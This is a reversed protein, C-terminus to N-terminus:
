VLQQAKRAALVDAVTLFSGFVVIRDGEAARERTRGYAERPSACEHIDGGAGCERLIAALADAGLGRPGPLSAVMWHDVRDRLLRVVGAVDKDLMGM